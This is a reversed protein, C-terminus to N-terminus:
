QQDPVWHEQPLQTEEAKWSWLDFYLLLLWANYLQDFPKMIFQSLGM